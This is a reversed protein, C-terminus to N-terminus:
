TKDEDAEERLLVLQIADAGDELLNSVCHEKGRLPCVDCAGSDKKGKLIKACKRMQMSVCLSSIEAELDSKKNKIQVEEKVAKEKPTDEEKFKEPYIEKLLGNYNDVDKQEIKEHEEMCKHIITQHKALEKLKSVIDDGGIARAIEELLEIMKDENM